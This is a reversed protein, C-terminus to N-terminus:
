ESDAKAKKSEAKKARAKAFGRQRWGLEGIWANACSLLCPVVDGSIPHNGAIRSQVAHDRQIPSQAPSM